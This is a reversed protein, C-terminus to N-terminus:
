NIRLLNIRLVVHYPRLRGDGAGGGYILDDGAYM